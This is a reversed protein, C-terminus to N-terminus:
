GAPPRGERAPSKPTGRRPRAQLSPAAEAGAQETGTTNRRTCARAAPLAEAARDLPYSFSQPQLGIGRLQVNLTRGGEMREIIDEDSSIEFLIRTPEVAEVPRKIASPDDAPADVAYSLYYTQNTDLTWAARYLGFDWIEDPRFSLILQDEGHIGFATCNSFRGASDETATVVWSGITQRDRLSLPETAGAAASGSPAPGGGDVAPARKLAATRSRFYPGGGETCEKAAQLAKGSNSLEFGFEKGDVLINLLTGRRIQSLLQDDDGLAVGIQDADLAVGDMEVYANRDVKYRLRYNGDAALAWGEHVLSLVWNGDVHKIFFLTAGNQYKSFIACSALQGTEDDSLALGSWDEVQFEELVAAKSATDPRCGSSSGVTCWSV